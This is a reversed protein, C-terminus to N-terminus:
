HWWALGVSSFAPDHVTPAPFARRSWILVPEGPPSLRCPRMRGSLAQNELIQLSTISGTGPVRRANRHTTRTLLCTKMSEFRRAKAASARAQIPAAPAPPYRAVRCLTALIAAGSAAAADGDAVDGDAVGADALGELGTCSVSAVTLSVVFGAEAGIPAGAAVEAAGTVLAGALRASGM